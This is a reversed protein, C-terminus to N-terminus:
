SFDGITSLRTPRFPSSNPEALLCRQGGITSLQTDVSDLSINEIALPFRHNDIPQHEPILKNLSNNRILCSFHNIATPSITLRRGFEVLHEPRGLSLTSPRYLFSSSSM